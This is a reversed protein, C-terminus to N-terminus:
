DYGGEDAPLRNKGSFDVELVPAKVAQHEPLKQFYYSGADMFVIYVGEFSMKRAKLLRADALNRSYGSLIERYEGDFIEPDQCIGYCYVHSDWRSMEKLMVPILNSEQEFVHVILQKESPEFSWASNRFFCNRRNSASKDIGSRHRSNMGEAGSRIKLAVHPKMMVASVAKFVEIEGSYDGCSDNNISSTPFFYRGGKTQTMEGADSFDIDRYQLFGRYCLERSSLIDPRSLLDLLQERRQGSLSPMDDFDLNQYRTISYYNEERCAAIDDRKRTM